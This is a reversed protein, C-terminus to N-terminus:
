ERGLRLETRACPRGFYFITLARKFLDRDAESLAAADFLTLCSQFKMDDPSGLIDSINSSALSLLADVGERLRRGLVPHALYSRAEDLDVIAFRRAMDSHGLGEIQPFIFWM